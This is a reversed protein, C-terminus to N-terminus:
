KGEKKKAAKALGWQMAAILVGLTLFGGVPLTLVSIAYDEPFLVIGPAAGLGGGGLLGGGFKGAGLLERVVCMIVLVITYGIGQFIGDVTSAGIGNKSAFGEARGLIICNVVILPIFVGLSNSLAPVFAKLLLDVCTVFGAIVVIYCAIRVEDPIIKRLLSIFINSLTLIILVSVGMGLGNFFSTTIALTSCMGLLQVLVPNQHILGDMFQKKMNM